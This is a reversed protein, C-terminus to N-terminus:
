GNRKRAEEMMVEIDTLWAEFLRMREAPTLSLHYRLQDLDVGSEDQSPLGERGPNNADDRPM